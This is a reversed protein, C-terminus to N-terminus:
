KKVSRRLEMLETILKRSSEGKQKKETILLEIDKIKENVRRKELLYICDAVAELAKESFETGNNEESLGRKYDAEAIFGRIAPDTFLEPLDNVKVIEDALFAREFLLFIRKFEPHTFLDPSLREMCGDILQPQALLTFILDREAISEPPVKLNVGKEQEGLQRNRSELNVYSKELSSREIGIEKSLESIMLDRQIPDTVVKITSLVSKAIEIKASYSNLSNKGTNLRFQIFSQSSNLTDKFVKSANKQQFSDPDENEPLKVIRVELGSELLVDVARHTANIGAVDSDYVIHVVNTFRKLLSAQKITLATGLSAVVNNMGSKIFALFDTYGEVLYAFGAQRIASRTSYLGFLNDGKTYVVTEPSNIYKAKDSEPTVGELQRGGFAIPKGMLNLIPFIIRSRFRDVYGSRDNKQNALGAKHLINPPINRKASSKVLDDWMSSAWGIKYETVIETSIGRAVLYDLAKGAELFTKSPNAATKTRRSILRSHFLEMAFSLASYIRERETKQAKAEPNRSYAPPEINAREALHKLAEPFSLGEIEMIFSFVSGGRGCGFCKFMARSHSVHFSPTKENHFPCLGWADGGGRQKLTVYESVVSVIDNAEQVRDKFSGDGSYSM